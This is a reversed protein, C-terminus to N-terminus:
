PAAGGVFAKGQKRVVREDIYKIGKGNYPEPKRLRRIEAALQGVAQKDAGSVKMRQGQVDVNVGPLIDVVRTDAFGINLNLKMGQVKATWGVGIIELEKAFGKSVGEVMKNILSRTLGHMARSIRDDSSREVVIAKADEDIRVTVEPRHTMSLSDKGGQVVVDRGNISVKVGDPIGIPKKGIRSM